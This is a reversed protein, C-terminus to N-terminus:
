PKSKTKINEAKEAKFDSILKAMAPDDKINKDRTVVGGTHNIIKKDKDFELQLDGIYQGRNGGIIVITKGFIEPNPRYIPDHCGIIVDIGDVTQALTKLQPYRIHALAIILDCQDKLEAVAKKAAEIPDGVVLQPENKDIVIQLRKFVIGFIGVKIAPIKKGKFKFGELKKIIYPPFFLTKEDPHFINTSIFPLNHKHQEDVLFSVRQLFDREGFNIADYKM